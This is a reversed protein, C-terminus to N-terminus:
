VPANDVSYDGVESPVKWWRCGKDYIQNIKAASEAPIEGTIDCGVTKLYTFHPRHDRPDDLASVHYTNGIAYGFMTFYDDIRRAYEATVSVRGAFFAQKELGISGNGSTLNGRTQNTQFSGQYDQMLAGTVNNLISLGAGVPNSPASILSSLIGLGTQTQIPLSNQATWAAYMDVNWACMPFNGLTATETNTVRDGIGSDYPIKYNVPRVTAVIPLLMTAGITLVPTRNRFFEYCYITKQGSGDDIQLFNYPYTLLKKNKPVYGNLGTNDTLVAFSCRYQNSSGQPYGTTHEQNMVLGTTSLADEIVTTGPADYDLVYRPAMYMSFIAGPQGNSVWLDIFANVATWNNANYARMEVGGYVGNFLSGVNEAAVGAESAVAIIIFKTLDVGTQDAKLYDYDNFVYEGLAVSEPTINTGPSDVSTHNREVFMDTLSYDFHWTQLEDITFTVLSVNNNIYEVKDLFAYFWKNGFSTNKYMLYNCTMLSEAPVSARISGPAGRQYSQASLYYKTKGIFYSAQSAASTFYITNEYDKNLPVNSLFRIETNPAIYAM